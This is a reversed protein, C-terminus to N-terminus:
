ENDKVGSHESPAQKHGQAREVQPIDALNAASGHQQARRRDLSMKLVRVINLDVPKKGRTMNTQHMQYFLSIHDLFVMSVKRERARMFWDVDEGYRLAPDFMGVKDFVNKRFLASGINFLQLPESFEESLDEKVRWLRLKGIAVDTAPSISFFALMASLNNKSWRDDVDLFGILDGRAIELGKNRAAAPGQNSQYIYNVSDKFEAAINATEDTSGDDVIIIEQPQFSQQKINNIAESLFAAGNFIPIIVSVMPAALPM